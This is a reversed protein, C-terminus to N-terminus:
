GGNIRPALVVADAEPDFRAALTDVGEKSQYADLGRSKAGEFEREAVAVSGSDDPSWTIEYDGKKIDLIRMVHKGEEVALATVISKREM